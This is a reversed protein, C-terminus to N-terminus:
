RILRGQEASDRILDIGDCLENFVELANDTNLLRSVVYCSEIFLQEEHAQNLRREAKIDWNDNFCKKLSHLADPCRRKLIDDLDTKEWNISYSDHEFTVIKHDHDVREGLFLRFEINPNEYRITWNVSYIYPLSRLKKFPVLDAIFEFAEEISKVNLVKAKNLIASLDEQHREYEFQAKEYAEYLEDEKKRYQLIEELIEREKKTVSVEHFTDIHNTGLLSENFHKVKGDFTLLHFKGEDWSQRPIYDFVLGKHQRWDDFDDKRAFKVVMGNKLESFKM